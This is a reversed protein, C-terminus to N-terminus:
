VDVVKMRKGRSRGLQRLSATVGALSRGLSPTRREIWKGLLKAGWVALLLAAIWRALIMLSPGDLRPWPTQWLLNGREIMWHWGTHAVIASLLIVGM